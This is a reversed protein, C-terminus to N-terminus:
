PCVGSCAFHWHLSLSHLLSSWVPCNVASQKNQPGTFRSCSGCELGASGCNLRRPNTRMCCHFRKGELGVAAGHKCFTQKRQCSALNTCAKHDNQGKCIFAVYLLLALTRVFISFIISQQFLIGCVSFFPFFGLFQLDEYLVKAKRLIYVKMCQNFIQIM